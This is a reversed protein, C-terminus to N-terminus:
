RGPAPKRSVPEYELLLDCDGWFGTGGFTESYGISKYKVAYRKEVEENGTWKQQGDVYVEVRIKQGPRANPLAFAVEMELAQYEFEAPLNGKLKNIKGDVRVEGVFQEGVAGSVKILYTRPMHWSRLTSLVVYLGIFLIALPLITWRFVRPRQVAMFGGAVAGCIAGMPATAIVFIALSGASPDDPASLKGLLGLSMAALVGLFFGVITGCVIGVLVALVKM